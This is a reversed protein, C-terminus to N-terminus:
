GRFSRFRDPSKQWNCLGDELVQMGVTLVSELEASAEEIEQNSLPADISGGFLLRAGQAPGTASSLYASGPVIQWLRLKGVMALYDFKATRGFRRVNMTRFLYHFCQAPNQGVASVADQMLALHSRRPGVWNVYSEVVAGTGGTTWAKLSEYKRHNGFGGPVGPRTLTGFNVQLWNRFAAADASTAQWDWRLGDGLRGYIERAYRWGGGAHRGFHVFLFILWFAEDPAGARQQLVAAKLPDFLEDNPDGRRPSVDRAAMRAVYRVRHISELLQEIFVQRRTQDRIGPLRRGSANLSVLGAEIKSAIDRDRPRM